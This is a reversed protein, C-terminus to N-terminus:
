TLDPPPLNIELYSDLVVHSCFNHDHINQYLWFYNNHKDSDILEKEKEDESSEKESEKESENKTDLLSIDYNTHEIIHVVVETTMICILILIVSFYRM